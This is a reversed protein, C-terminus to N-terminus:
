KVIKKQKFGLGKYATRQSPQARHKKQSVFMVSIYRKTGEEMVRAPRCSSPLRCGTTTSVSSDTRVATMEIEAPEEESAFM